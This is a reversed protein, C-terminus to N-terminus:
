QLNQKGHLIRRQVTLSLVIAILMTLLTAGPEFEPVINISEPLQVHSQYQVGDFFVNMRWGETTSGVGVAFVLRQGALINRYIDVNFTYATPTATLVNGHAYTFTYVYNGVTQNQENLVAVGAGIGSYSPPVDDSSLWVTFSATGAILAPDRLPETIWGVTGVWITGVITTANPIAAAVQEISGSSSTPANTNAEEIVTASANESRYIESVLHFYFVDGSPQAQALALGPPLVFLIALVSMAIALARM